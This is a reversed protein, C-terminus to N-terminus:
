NVGSLSGGPLLPDPSFTGVSDPDEISPQVLPGCGGGKCQHIDFSLVQLIPEGYTISFLHCIHSALHTGSHSLPTCGGDRHLLTRVHLRCPHMPLFQLPRPSALEPPALPTASPFTSCPSPPAM